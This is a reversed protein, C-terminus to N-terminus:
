KTEEARKADMEAKLDEWKVVHGAAIQREGERVKEICEACFDMEHEHPTPTGCLECRGMSGM